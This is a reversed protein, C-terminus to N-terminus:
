GLVRLASSLASQAGATWAGWVGSAASEYPRVTGRDFDDISDGDPFSGCFDLIAGNGTMPLAIQDAAGVVTMDGSQHFAM